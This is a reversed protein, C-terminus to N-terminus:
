NSDTQAAAPESTPAAPTSPETASSTTKRVPISPAASSTMKPRINYSLTKDGSSKMLSLVLSGFMFLTVMVWTIKQFLDQGGSGGFLMQAGGGLGGLGMSSRSKQVLIILVLLFCLFVFLTVLFSYLM